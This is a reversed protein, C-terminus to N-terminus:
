RRSRNRNGNRWPLNKLAAVERANEGSIHKWEELSPKQPRDRAPGKRGGGGTEMGGLFTKSVAAFFNLVLHVLVTEMGGLFTKSHGKLTM